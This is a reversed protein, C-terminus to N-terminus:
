EYQIVHRYIEEAQRGITDASFARAVFQRAAHAAGLRGGDSIVARLKAALDDIDESRFFMVSGDPQPLPHLGCVSSLLVPTGCMLAEIATIAFVESRSLVVVVASDVM